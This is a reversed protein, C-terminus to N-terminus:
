EAPEEDPPDYDTRSPSGDEELGARLFIIIDELEGIRILREDDTM